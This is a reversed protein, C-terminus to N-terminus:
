LKILAKTSKAVDTLTVQKKELISKAVAAMEDDTIYIFLDGDVVGTLRCTRVLEEIRTQVRKSPTHFRNALGNISVVKQQGALETFERVTMTEGEEGKRSSLFTNWEELELREQAEKAELRLQREEELREAELREREKKERKAAEVAEKQQQRRKEEFLKREEREAAKAAKQREKRSLHQGQMQDDGMIDEEADDQDEHNGGVPAIRRNRKMIFQARQRRQARTLTAPDARALQEDYDLKEEEAREFEEKTQVRMLILSYITTALFAFGLLSVILIAADSFGVGIDAGGGFPGDKSDVTAVIM